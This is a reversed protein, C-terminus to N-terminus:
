SAKIRPDLYAYLIDAGLNFVIVLITEFLVAGQLLPMDRSQIANVAIRGVGPINFVSETIVAGALLGAM